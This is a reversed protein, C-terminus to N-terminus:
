LGFVEKDLFFKGRRVVKEVGPTLAMNPLDELRYFVAEDADSGAQLVGGRVRCLYDILVYHYRVRGDDGPVIRDLVEVLASPEV